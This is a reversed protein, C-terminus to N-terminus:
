KVYKKEKRPLKTLRVQKKARMEAKDWNSLLWDYIISCILFLIFCLFCVLLTGFFVYFVGEFWQGLYGFYEMNGGYLTCEDVTTEDFIINDELMDSNGTVNGYNIYCHGNNGINHGLLYPIFILSAIILITLGVEMFKQEAFYKWTLSKIQQKNSM